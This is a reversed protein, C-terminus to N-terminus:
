RCACKWLIMGFIGLIWWGPWFIVLFLYNGGSSLILTFFEFELKKRLRRIRKKDWAVFGLRKHLASIASLTWGPPIHFFQAISIQSIFLCHWVVYPIRLFFLLFATLFRQCRLALEVAPGLITIIKPSHQTVVAFEKTPATTTALEDFATSMRSM